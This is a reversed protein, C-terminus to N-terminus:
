LFISLNYLLALLDVELADLDGCFSGFHSYRQCDGLVHLLFVVDELLEVVFVPLARVALPMVIAEVALQKRVLISQFFFTM